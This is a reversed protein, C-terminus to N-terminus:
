LFKSRVTLKCSSELTMEADKLVVKYEATDDGLCEPIRLRYRGYKEDSDIKIRESATLEQGNKYRHFQTSYQLRVDVLWKVETPKGKVEVEFVAERQETVTRDCLGKKM